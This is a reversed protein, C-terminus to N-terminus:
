PRLRDSIRCGHPREPRENTWGAEPTRAEYRMVTGKALGEVSGAASSTEALITGTRPNLITSYREAVDVGGFDATFGTSKVFTVAIGSRGLPDTVSGGVTTTPLAALLRLTAARVSPKVPLDLLVWAGRLFEEYSEEGKWYARLRERLKVADDPMAALDTRTLGGLWGGGLRGGPVIGRVYECAPATTHLRLQKCYQAPTGLLCVRHVTGPSGAARWIREDAPTAPRISQERSVVQTPDGPDRPQWLDTRTSHLVNFKKGGARVRILGNSLLSRRWYAGSGDPLRAVRDALRLLADNGRAPVIVPAPVATVNVMVTVVAMVVAVTAAAAGLAWGWALRRRGSKSRRLRLWSLRRRAPPTAVIEALLDHVGQSLRPEASGAAPDIASMMRDITSM